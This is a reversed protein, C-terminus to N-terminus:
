YRSFISLRIIIIKNFGLKEVFLDLNCLGLPDLAMRYMKSKQLEIKNERGTTKPGTRPDPESAASLLGMEFRIEIETEREAVPVWCHDDSKGYQQQKEGEGATIVM